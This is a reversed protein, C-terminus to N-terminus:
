WWFKGQIQVDFSSAQLNARLLVDFSCSVQYRNIDTSVFLSVSQAKFICEHLIDLFKVINNYLLKQM